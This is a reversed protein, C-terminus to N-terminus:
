KIKDQSHNKNLTRNEEPFWDPYKKIIEQCERYLESGVGTKLSQCYMQVALVKQVEIPIEKITHNKM